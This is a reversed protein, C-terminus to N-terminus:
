TNDYPNTELSKFTHKKSDYEIVGQMVIFFGLGIPYMRLVEAQYTTQLHNELATFVKASTKPLLYLAICTTNNNPNPYYKTGFILQEEFAQELKSELQELLPNM